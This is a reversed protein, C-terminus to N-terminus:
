RYNTLVLEPDEDYLKRKEDIKEQLTSLKHLYDKRIYKDSETEQVYLELEFCTPSIKKCAVIELLKHQANYNIHFQLGRVVEEENRILFLVEVPDMNGWRSEDDTFVYISEGDFIKADKVIKLM